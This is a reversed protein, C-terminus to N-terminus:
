QWARPVVYSLRRWIQTERTCFKSWFQVWVLLLIMVEYSKRTQGKREGKAWTSQKIFNVLPKMV